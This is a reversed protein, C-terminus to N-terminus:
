TTATPGPCTGDRETKETPPHLAAAKEDVGQVQVEPSSPSVSPTSGSTADQQSVEAGPKKKKFFGHQRQQADQRLMEELEAPTKGKMAVGPDPTVTSARLKPLAFELLKLAADNQEKIFAIVEASTADDPLRQKLNVALCKLAAPILEKPHRYELRPM